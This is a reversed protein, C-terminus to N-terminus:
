RGTQLKDPPRLQDRGRVVKVMLETKWKHKELVKAPHPEKM